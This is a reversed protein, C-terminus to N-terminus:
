NSFTLSARKFSRHVVFIQTRYRKEDQNNRMVILYPIRDRVMGYGLLIISGSSVSPFITCANVSMNMEMAVAIHAITDVGGNNISIQWAIAWSAM